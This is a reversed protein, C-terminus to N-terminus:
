RGAENFESDPEEEPRDLLHQILPRAGVLEEGAQQRVRLSALGADDTSLLQSLDIRIPPELDVSVRELEEIAEGALRGELCIERVEGWDRVGIWLDM